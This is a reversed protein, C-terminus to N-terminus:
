PEVGCRTCVRVHDDPSWSTGVFAWGTRHIGLLCGVPTFLVLVALAPALVALALLLPRTM